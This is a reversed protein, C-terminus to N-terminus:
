HRDYQHILFIKQRGLLTEKVDGAGSEKLTLVVQIGYASVLYSKQILFFPAVCGVNLFNKYKEYNKNKYFFTIKGGFIWGEIEVREKEGNKKFEIGSGDFKNGSQVIRVIISDEINAPSTGKWKELFKTLNRM